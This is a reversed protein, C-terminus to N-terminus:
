KKEAMEGCHPCSPDRAVMIEAFRMNLGDYVLFRNTLLQGIGTIYKIVESVQIGAIIAPTAGLVPSKRSLSVGRYLCMLCASQGPVITMARGEFGSIAGHFLPIKKQQACLNLAYRAALNDVADIIIDCGSVMEAANESTIMTQIAEIEVGPNLQRLKNKASDIKREGINSTWHLVQRNLNSLEVTDIDVIRISGIGAAALYLAAPSGLGGAGALFARAKKIKEQGELGFGPIMIQRQYRELEQSTLMIRDEWGTSFRIDLDYYLM